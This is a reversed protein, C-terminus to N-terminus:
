LPQADKSRKPTGGTENPEWRHQHPNPHSEPRGHDTFDIDRVPTGNKDFERAQPYKSKRGQKTGLETHPAISEPIPNGYEDRPLPRDPFSSDCEPYSVPSPERKSNFIINGSMGFLNGIGYEQAVQYGGWMVACTAASYALTTFSPLVFSVGRPIAFVFQGDPDVFTFPNNNVYAYLNPGDAFDLPDATLWRGQDPSYDRKLFHIRGTDEDRRKSAFSWPNALANECIFQMEGFASFRYTQVVDRREVDVLCRVNGRYYSIASYLEKDLEVAITSGTGRGNRLIRFQYLEIDKSVFSTCFFSLAVFFSIVLSQLAM